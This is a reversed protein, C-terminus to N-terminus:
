LLVFSLPLMTDYGYINAPFDEITRRKKVIATYRKWIAIMPAAGYIPVSFGKDAAIYNRRLPLSAKTSTRADDM